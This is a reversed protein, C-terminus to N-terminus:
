TLMDSIAPSSMKKGIPMYCTKNWILTPYANENDLIKFTASTSLSPNKLGKLFCSRYM